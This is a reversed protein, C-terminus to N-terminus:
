KAFDEASIVIQTWDCGRFIMWGETEQDVEDDFIERFIGLFEWFGDSKTRNGDLRPLDIRLNLGWIVREDDNM